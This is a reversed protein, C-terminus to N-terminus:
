GKKGEGAPFRTDAMILLLELTESRCHLIGCVAMWQLADDRYACLVHVHVYMHMCVYMCVHICMYM